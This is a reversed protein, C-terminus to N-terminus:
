GRPVPTPIPEPTPTVQTALDYFYLHGPKITKTTTKETGKETYTITLDIDDGYVAFSFWNGKTLSCDSKSMMRGGSFSFGDPVGDVYLYAKSASIKLQITEDNSKFTSQLDLLHGLSTNQLIKSALMAMGPNDKERQLKSYTSLVAWLECDGNAFSEEKGEIVDLEGAFVFEDNIKTLSLYQYDDPLYDYTDDYVRLIYQTEEVDKDEFEFTMIQGDDTNKEEHKIKKLSQKGNDVKVSFPVKVVAPHTTEADLVPQPVINNDEDTSCATALTLAAAMPLYKLISTKMNKNM